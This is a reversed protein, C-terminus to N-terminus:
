LNRILDLHRAQGERSEDIRPLVPALLPQPLDIRQALAVAVDAASAAARDAELKWGAMVEAHLDRLHRAGRVGARVGEGALAQRVAAAVRRPLIVRMDDGLAEAGLAFGVQEYLRPVFQPRRLASAGLAPSHNRLL